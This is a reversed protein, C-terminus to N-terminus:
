AQHAPEASDDGTDAEADDGYQGPPFDLCDIGVHSGIIRLRCVEGSIDVQWLQFSDGVAVHGPNWLHFRM